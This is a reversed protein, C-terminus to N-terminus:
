PRPSWRARLHRAPASAADAADNWGEFAAVLVPRRLQPRDQWHVHDMGAVTGAARSTRTTGGGYGPRRHRGEIAEGGHGTGPEFSGEGRGSRSLLLAPLGDAPPVVGQDEGGGARALGQGGEQPSDVPEHGLRRDVPATH